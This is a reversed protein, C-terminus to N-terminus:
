KNISEPVTHTNELCNVNEYIHEDWSFSKSIKTLINTKIM